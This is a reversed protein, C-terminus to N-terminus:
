EALWVIIQKNECTAQYFKDNNENTHINIGMLGGYPECVGKSQEFVTNSIHGLPEASDPLLYFIIGIVYVTVVCVVILFFHTLDKTEKSVVSMM